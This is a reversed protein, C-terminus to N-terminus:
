WAVEKGVFGGWDVEEKEPKKGDFGYEKYIEELTPRTKVEYEDEDDIEIIDHVVGKGAELQRIGREIRDLYRNNKIIIPVIDDKVM